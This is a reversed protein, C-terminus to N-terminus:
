PKCDALNVDIHTIPLDDRDRFALRVTTGEELLERRIKSDGCTKGVLNARVNEELKKPDVDAVRRTILKYHFTILHDEGQALVLQTDPDVAMPLAGNIERAVDQLHEASTPNAFWAKVFGRAFFAVFLIAFVAAPRKM